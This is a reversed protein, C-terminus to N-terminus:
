GGPGQRAMITLCDVDPPCDVAAGQDKLQNAMDCTAIVGDLTCGLGGGGGGGASRDACQKVFKATCSELGSPDVMNIPNNETYAYANHSQLDSITGGLPDTSLFRGLRSSYYRAFAYDLGSDTSGATTEPDREYGTFKYTPPCATTQLRETHSIEQGYPTFEADYCLQGSTQGPGNGTTITRTSGLADAFYYFIRGRAQPPALLVDVTKDSALADLYRAVSEMSEGARRVAPWDGVVGRM